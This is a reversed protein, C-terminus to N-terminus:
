KGDEEQEKRLLWEVLALREESKGFVSLIVRGDTDYVVMYRHPVKDPGTYGWSEIRPRKM